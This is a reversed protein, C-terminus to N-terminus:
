GMSSLSIPVDLFTSYRKVAHELSDIDSSNLRYFPKVEVTIGAKSRRGRWTGQVLGEIVLAPYFIGNSSLVNKTHERDLLAGREKYGIIYEDFAPLLVHTNEGTGSRSPGSFYTIGDMTEENLRSGAAEISKRVEEMTLGSWWVLDQATAPGHGSFYRVALEGLAQEGTINKSSQVWNDLLVFSPERGIMPGFCIVGQLALHRLIHYARQGTTTIGKRELAVMIDSRTMQGQSDLESILIDSSREYVPDDLRLQEDRRKSRAILRPAVLHLLWRLDEAATFHLTGRMLWTRVISGSAVAREVDAIKSASSRLGIAWLSSPRDQAQVVLLRSVAEHVTSSPCSIGQACLRLAAIDASAM